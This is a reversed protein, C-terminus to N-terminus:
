LTCYFDYIGYVNYLKKRDDPGGIAKVNFAIFAIFAIIGAESFATFIALVRSIVSM